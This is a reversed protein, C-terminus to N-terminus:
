YEGIVAWGALTGLSIKEIIFAEGPQDAVIVPINGPINAVQMSGISVRSNNTPSGSIVTTGSLLRYHSVAASSNSLVLEYVAFKKDADPTMVTETQTGSAISIEYNALDHSNPPTIAM